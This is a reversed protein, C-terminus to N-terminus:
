IAYEAEVNVGPGLAPRLASVVSDVEARPTGLAVFTLSCSPRLSRALREILTGRSAVAHTDDLEGLFYRLRSPKGKECVRSVRREVREGFSTWPENAHRCLLHNTEGEPTHASLALSAQESCDVVLIEHALASDQRDM